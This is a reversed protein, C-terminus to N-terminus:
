PTLRSAEDYLFDQFNYAEPRLNDYNHGEHHLDKYNYQNEHSEIIHMEKTAEDINKQLESLRFMKERRKEVEQHIAELNKIEHDLKDDQPEPSIAKRKMIRAEQILTEDGQNTDLPTLVVGTSTAKEPPM